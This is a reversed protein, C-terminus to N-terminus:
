SRSSSERSSRPVQGPLLSSSFPVCCYDLWLTVNSRYWPFVFIPFHNCVDHGAIFFIALNDHLEKNSLDESSRIMLDLLDVPNDDRGTEAGGEGAEQTKKRRSEIITYLIGNFKELDNRLRRSFPIPLRGVWPFFFLIPHFLGKFVRNYVSVYEAEPNQLSALDFSFGATAMVDLTFRQMWNHVDVSIYSSSSTDSEELLKWQSLLTKVCPVFSNNVIRSLNKTQFAPSIIKSLRRWESGNSTLINKGFLQSMLLDPNDDSIQFKPFSDTNIFVERALEPDAVFISWRNLSVSLSLPV